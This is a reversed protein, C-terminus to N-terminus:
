NELPLAKARFGSLGCQTLAEVNPDTSNLFMMPTQARLTLGFTTYFHEIFKKNFTDSNNLLILYEQDVNWCFEVSKVRPLTQALLETTLVDKIDSKERTPIKERNNVMLWEQVRMEFMARFLNSPLSKIDIRFQAYMYPDLFWKDIQTFDAQLLSEATVWGLQEDAKHNNLPNVFANSQLQHQLTTLWNQGNREPKGDVIYRRMTRAGKILKM